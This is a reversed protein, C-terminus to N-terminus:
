FTVKFEYFGTENQTRDVIIMQNRSVDRLEAMISRVVEKAVDQCMGITQAPKVTIHYVGSNICKLHLAARSGEHIIVM